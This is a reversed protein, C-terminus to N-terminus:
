PASSFPAQQQAAKRSLKIALMAVLFCMGYFAIMSLARRIGVDSGDQIGEWLRYCSGAVFLAHTTAIIWLGIALWKRTKENM